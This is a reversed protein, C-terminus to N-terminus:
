LGVSSSHTLVHASLTAMTLECTTIVAPWLPFTRLCSLNCMIFPLHCQGVSALRVSAPRSKVDPSQSEIQAAKGWSNGQTRNSCLTFSMSVTAPASQIAVKTYQVCYIEECHKSIVPRTIAAMTLGCGCVFPVCKSVCKFM